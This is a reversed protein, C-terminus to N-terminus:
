LPQEHETEERGPELLARLQRRTHHLRSKVTGTPIALAQAIEEISLEEIYFLRLMAQRDMDLKGIAERLSDVSGTGDPAAGAPPAQDAQHRRFKRDRQRRAICDACKNTLVRFLWARFRAPDDLRHLGRIVAIWTEQVVDGVDADARGLLAGAHALLPLRWRRVLDEVAGAERAQCRLVLLEDEVQRATRNM